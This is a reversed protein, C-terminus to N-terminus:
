SPTMMRAWAMSAQPSLMVTLSDPIVEVLGVVGVEGAGDLEGLVAIDDSAIQNTLNHVALVLNAAAIVIGLFLRIRSANVKCSGRQPKGLPLSANLLFALFARSWYGAASLRIKEEPFPPSVRFYM